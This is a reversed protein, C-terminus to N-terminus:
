YSQLRGMTLEMVLRKDGRIFFAMEHKVVEAPSFDIGNISSNIFTEFHSMELHIYGFSSLEKVFFGAILNAATGCSDLIEAEDDEDIRGYGLLWMFRAIYDEPIYVVLAGLARQSDMHGKDMYFSIASVITRAGFKELGDIRMRGAFPVIEKEYVIPDQSLYIDGKQALLKKVASILIKSLLWLDQNEGDFFIDPKSNSM